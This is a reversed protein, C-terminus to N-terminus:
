ATRSDGRRIPVVDARLIDGLAEAIVRDGDETAHQYRLAAAMSSHGGRRMIEKTSAGTAATMTLAFHRLDHFRYEFGCARRAKLYPTVFSKPRLQTGNRGTFLLSDPDTEVFSDLHHVIEHMAQEPLHISRIGADTKPDAYLLTGDNLESLAREVRITSGLPDVDKRRLALVEGRRLGGWAALIVAARLNLPMADTLKRLEPITPIPREVVKDSGARPIRCPNRVLLEDHLAASFIARLLRYACRAAGPTTSSLEAHWKRIQSPSVDAIPIRGFAPILHCRLLSEYQMVTRPRLDPRSRIWDKAYKAFQIQGARPDIWNGRRIDTEEGALWALADAKTPFTHPGAHQTGEHWYTAQWRGSARKRVYGFHRRTTM